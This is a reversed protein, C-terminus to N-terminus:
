GIFEDLDHLYETLRELTDDHRLRRKAAPGSADGGTGENTNTPVYEAYAMYCWSLARLLVLQEAAATGGSIEDFTGPAGRAAVYARLFLEREAASLRYRRKWRTTTPALFHALDLYCSGNVAKEWDVLRVPASPSDRDVVFNHSNVETNVVSCPPGLLLDPRGSLAAHWGWLRRGAEPLPHDAHRGLLRASEALLDRAPERYWLLRDSNPLAHIAALCEAAGGLDTAYELPTGPLFEMLIAGAGVGGPAADAVFYPAPTVGSAVVSELAAFEYRAQDARDLQTGHNIRFVFEQGPAGVATGLVRWNENYEGAALFNIEGVDRLWGRELCFERIAQRRGEAGPATV